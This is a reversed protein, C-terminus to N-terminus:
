GPTVLLPDIRRVHQHHNSNLGGTIPGGREGNGEGGIGNEASVMPLPITTSVKRFLQKINAGTKASVECYTAGIEAAKAEGEEATVVRKDGLDIKNGVLFFVMQEGGREQKADEIWRTTNVFSERSSIDFVVIAGASNRIYSPILSKFREQGATDWLQLRIARGDVTVLKTLFDIGLTARYHRDFADYMFRAVISSKGVAQDGLLIVKLRTGATSTNPVTAMTLMSTSTTNSNSNNNHTNGGDDNSHNNEDDQDNSRKSPKTTSHDVLAEKEEIDTKSSM